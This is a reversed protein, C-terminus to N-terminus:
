YCHYNELKEYRRFDLIRILSISSVSFHFFVALFCVHFLFSIFSCQITICVIDTNKWTASEVLCLCFKKSSRYCCIKRSEKKCIEVFM